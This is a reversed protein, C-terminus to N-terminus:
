RNEVWHLMTVNLQFEQRIMPSIVIRRLCAIQENKECDLAQGIVLCEVGGHINGRGRVRMKLDSSSDWDVDSWPLDFDSMTLNLFSRSPLSLKSGRDESASRLFGDM